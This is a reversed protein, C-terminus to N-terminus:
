NGVVERVSSLVYKFMTNNETGDGNVIPQSNQFLVLGKGEEYMRIETYTNDPFGEIGEVKTETKYIKKGEEIESVHVLTTQATYEKGLYSFKQFWLNGEELPGQLIIQNPIISYLTEMNGDAKYIDHNRIIERISNDNIVYQIDFTRQASIENESNLITGEMSIITLEPKEQVDKIYIVHSYDQNVGNYYLGKGKEKIFIQELSKRYSVDISETDKEINKEQYMECGIFGILTMMLIMILAIVTFFNLKM